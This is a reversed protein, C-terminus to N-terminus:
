VKLRLDLSVCNDLITCALSNKTTRQQIFGYNKSHSYTSYDVIRFYVTRYIKVAKIRHMQQCLMQCYSSTCAQQYHNSYMSPLRKWGANIQNSKAPNKICHIKSNYSAIYCYEKTNTLNAIRFQKTHSSSIQKDINKFPSHNQLRTVITSQHCSTIIKLLQLYLFPTFLYKSFCFKSKSPKTMDSM